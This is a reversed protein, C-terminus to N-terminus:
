ASSTALLLCEQWGWTCECKYFNWKDVKMNGGAPSPCEKRYDYSDSSNEGCYAPLGYLGVVVFAMVFVAIKAYKM